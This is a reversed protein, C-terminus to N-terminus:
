VPPFGRKGSMRYAPRNFLVPLRSKLREAALVIVVMMFPIEILEASRVGLRPVLFPVRIAGLLFGAGFALAFYAFGSKLIRTYM